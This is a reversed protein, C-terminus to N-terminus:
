EVWVYDDCCPCYHSDGERHVHEGCRVCKKGRAHPTYSVGSWEKSYTPDGPRKRTVHRGKGSQGGKVWEKADADWIREGETLLEMAEDLDACEEHMEHFKSVVVYRPRILRASYVKLDHELRRKQGYTTLSVFDHTYGCEDCVPYYDWESDAFIPSVDDSEIDVGSPLCAVCYVNGDYEVAYYDWAKM